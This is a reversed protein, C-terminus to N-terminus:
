EAGLSTLKFFNDIILLLKGSMVIEKLLVPDKKQVWTLFESDNTYLGFERYTRTLHMLNNSYVDLSKYDGEALQKLLFDARAKIEKFSEYKENM